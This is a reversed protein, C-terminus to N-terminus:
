SKKIRLKVKKLGYKQLLASHQEQSEVKVKHSFNNWIFHMLKTHIEDLKVMDNASIRVKGFYLQYLEDRATVVVPIGKIGAELEHLNGEDDAIMWKEQMNLLDALSDLLTTGEEM